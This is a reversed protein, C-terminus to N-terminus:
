APAAAVVFGGGDRYVILAAQQVPLLMERKGTAQMAAASWAEDGIGLATAMAAGLDPWVPCLAAFADNFFILRGQEDLLAIPDAAAQMAVQSREAIRRTTDLDQRLARVTIATLALRALQALRASDASGFDARPKPDFICVTGVTYGSPLMIPAGAYFRVFPHGTVSPNDHFREDERADAIVFVEEQLIAHACFSTTRPGESVDHGARAKFWQREADILTILCSEAEFISQGIQVIADFDPEAATDLLSLAHLAALRFPENGPLPPLIM